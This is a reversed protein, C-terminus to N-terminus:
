GRLAIPSSSAWRRRHLRAGRVLAVRPARRAGAARAVGVTVSAPIVARAPQALRLETVARRAGVARRLARTSEANVANAAILRAGPLALRAVDRVVRPCARRHRTPFRRV